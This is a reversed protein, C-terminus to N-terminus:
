LGTTAMGSSIEQKYQVDTLSQGLTSVPANAQKNRYWLGAIAAGALIAIM